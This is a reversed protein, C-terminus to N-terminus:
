FMDSFAKKGRRAKEQKSIVKVAGPSAAVASLHQSQRWMGEKEPRVCPRGILVGTM